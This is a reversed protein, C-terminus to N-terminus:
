IIINIQKSIKLRQVFAARFNAYDIDDGKLEPQTAYFSRAARKLKLRAM